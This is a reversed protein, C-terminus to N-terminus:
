SSNKNPFKTLIFLCIAITPIQQICDCCRGHRSTRYVLFFKLYKTKLWDFTHEITLIITGNHARNCQNGHLSLRNSSDDAGTRLERLWLRRWFDNQRTLAGASWLSHDIHDVPFCRAASQDVRGEVGVFLFTYYRYMRCLRLLLASGHCISTTRRSVHDFCCFCRDGHKSHLMGFMGLGTRAQTSGFVNVARYRRIIGFCVATGSGCLFLTGM